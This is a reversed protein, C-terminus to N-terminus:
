GRSGIVHRTPVPFSVLHPDGPTARTEDGKCRHCQRPASCAIARPHSKKPGSRVPMIWAIREKPGPSRSVARASGRRPLRRWVSARRSPWCGVVGGEPQGAIGPPRGSLAYGPRAAM